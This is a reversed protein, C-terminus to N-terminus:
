CGIVHACKPKNIGIGGGPGADFHVKNGDDRIVPPQTASKALDKLKKKDADSVLPIKDIIEPLAKGAVAAGIISTPAFVVALNRDRFADALGACAVDGYHYIMEGGQQAGYATVAIAAAVAGGECNKQANELDKTKIIGYFVRDNQDTPIPNAILVTQEGRPEGKEVRKDIECQQYKADIMRQDTPSKAEYTPKDFKISGAQECTFPNQIVAASTAPDAALAPPTVTTAIGILSLGIAFTWRM